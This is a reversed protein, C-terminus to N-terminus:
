KKLFRIRHHPKAGGQLEDNKLVSITGDVELVAMRVDEISAVDHERLAQHLESLPIEERDLNAQVVHGKHVLLTPMGESLRRFLPHRWTLRAMLANLMLLTGASLMGGALTVDPGTMANQVANAILMMLIFDFPSMQGAKRKGSIRFGGIIFLYIITTRAFIELYPM